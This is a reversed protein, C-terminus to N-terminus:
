HMSQTLHASIAVAGLAGTALAHVTAKTPVACSGVAYVGQVCTSFDHEDVRIHGQDGLDLGLQLAFMGNLEAKPEHFQFNNATDVRAQIM